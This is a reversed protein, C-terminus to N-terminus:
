RQRFWVIPTNRILQIRAILKAVLNMTIYIPFMLIMLPNNILSFLRRWWIKSRKVTYGISALAMNGRHWRSLVNIIKDSEPFTTIFYTQKLLVREHQEFHACVFADDAILDPFDLWRRRACRNIAYCGMGVVDDNMPPFNSFVYLFIKSLTSKPKIFIPKPSVILPSFSSLSTVMMEVADNSLIVDADLYIIFDGQICSEAMNIAHTKSACPSELLHIKIATQHISQSFQKVLNSTNDDCGNAVVIVDM